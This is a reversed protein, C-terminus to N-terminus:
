LTFLLAIETVPRPPGNTQSVYLSGCKRYAIPECIATLNNAKRGPWEKGGPLNRTSLKRLPKTLGLSM